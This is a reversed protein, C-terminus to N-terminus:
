RYVENRHGIKYIIVERRDDHIQYLIRYDGVRVRWGKRTRGQLKQSGAPRPNVGLKRIAADLRKLISPELSRLDKQVRSDLIVSYSM